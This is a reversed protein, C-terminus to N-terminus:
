VVLKHETVFLSFGNDRVASRETEAGYTDVDHGEEEVKKGWYFKSDSIKWGVINRKVICIYGCSYVIYVMCANM